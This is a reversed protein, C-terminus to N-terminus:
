IYFSSFRVRPQSLGFLNSSTVPLVAFSFRISSAFSLFFCLFVMSLVSSSSGAALGEIYAFELYRFGGFPGITFERAPGDIVKYPKISWYTKLFALFSLSGSDEWFSTLIPRLVFEAWRNPPLKVRLELVMFIYFWFDASFLFSTTEGPKLVDKVRLNALDFLGGLFSSLPFAKTTFCYFFDVKLSSFIM